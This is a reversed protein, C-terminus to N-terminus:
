KKRYKIVIAVLGAIFVVATVVAAIIIKKINANTSDDPQEDFTFSDSTSKKISGENLPIKLTARDLAVESSDPDMACSDATSIFVTETATADKIKFTLTAVTASGDEECDEEKVHYLDVFQIAIIDSGSDAGIEVFTDKIDTVEHDTFELVAPDYKLRFDASETGAFDLVRYLVTITQKESDYDAALMLEPTKWALATLSFVSVALIVVSLISAIIKKM